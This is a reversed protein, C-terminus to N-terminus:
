NERRGIKPIGPIAAHARAMLEKAIRERETPFHQPTQNQPANHRSRLIDTTRGRRLKKMPVTSDLDDHDRGRKKDNKSITRINCNNGTSSAARTEMDIVRIPQNATTSSSYGSDLSVTQKDTGTIIEKQKRRIPLREKLYRTFVRNELVHAALNSAIVNPTRENAAIARKCTDTYMEKKIQRSFDSAWEIKQQMRQGAPTPTSSHKVGIYPAPQNFWGLPDQETKSEGQNTLDRTDGFDERAAFFSNKFWKARVGPGKKVM